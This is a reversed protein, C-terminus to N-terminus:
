SQLNDIDFVQLAELAMTKDGTVTLANTNVAVSLKLDGSIIDAWIEPTCNIAIEAGVGLVSRLQRRDLAALAARDYHELAYERGAEGRARKADSAKAAEM